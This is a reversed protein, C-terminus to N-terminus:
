HVGSKKGAIPTAPPPTIPAINELTSVTIGPAAVAERIHQALAILEPAPSRKKEKSVLPVGQSVAVRMDEENNPLTATFEREIFRQASEVPVTGRARKRGQEVSVRNLVCAARECIDETDELNNLKKLVKRVNLVAPITPLGILVIQSAAKFVRLTMDDFPTPLDVVVFDYFQSLAELSTEVQQPTIDYADDLDSPALVVRLGGPHQIIAHEITEQDADEVVKILDTINAPSQINLFAHVDGFQLNCDVLVVRTDKDMLAAAINTAITTTGAGGQPSYVAIIHGQRVGVADMGSASWGPVGSRAAAGAMRAALARTSDNLKYANRIADYLEDPEFPKTMYYRAGASLAERMYVADAQVTVIVVAATPVAATIAQTAKIGDMDPMNIDMLVVDPKLTVTQDIGERGTNATGAVEMDTEFALLKRIHERTDPNDDVILVQIVHGGTQPKGQSQTQSSM